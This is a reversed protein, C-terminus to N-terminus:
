EANDPQVQLVTDLEPGWCDLFLHVSQLPDLPPGGLHDFAQLVQGVLSFSDPRRERSFLLNLPCRM